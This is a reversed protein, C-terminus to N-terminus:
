IQMRNLTRYDRNTPLADGLEKKIKTLHKSKKPIPNIIMEIKCETESLLTIKTAAVSNDHFIPTEKSRLGFM